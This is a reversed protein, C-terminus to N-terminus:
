YGKGQLKQYIGKVKPDTQNKQSQAWQLAQQDAKSMPPPPPEELALQKLLGSELRNPDVEALEATGIAYGKVKTKLRESMKKRAHELIAQYFKRDDALANGSMELELRRAVEARYSPDRQARGVDADSVRDEGAAKLLGTKAMEVGVRDPTKDLVGKLMGLKDWADLTDKNEKRFDGAFKAYQKKEDKENKFGMLKLKEKLMAM